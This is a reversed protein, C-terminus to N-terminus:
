STGAIVFSVVLGVGCVGNWRNIADLNDFVINYM